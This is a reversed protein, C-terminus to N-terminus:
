RIGHSPHECFPSNCDHNKDIPIFAPCKEQDKLHSCCGCSNWCKYDNYIRACKRENM